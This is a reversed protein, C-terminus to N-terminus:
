QMGGLSTLALAGSWELYTLLPLLALSLLACARVLRRGLVTKCNRACQYTAVTVYLSLLLGGITYLRMGVQGASDFLVELLGYALSGLIGYLWVVRGISTRGQLPDILFRWRNM